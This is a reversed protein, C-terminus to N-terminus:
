FLALRERILGQLHDRIVEDELRELVEGAFAFTLERRAEAESIGRARLYFLQDEDLQGITAGHACKVDDAYIELQPRANAVAGKSLLLNKNHQASDTKQAQERVLVYGSFISSARDALVGKYYERSTCHAVAHDILTTVDAHQREAALYIGDLCCDAGSEALEVTIATRAIAGGLSVNFSSYRSDRAQRVAVTQIHTAGGAEDQVKVHRLHANAGTYAEFVVNNLYAGDGLGCYSELLTLSAGEELVVLVRPQILEAQAQASSFFGLHIPKTVQVGKPVYVLLGDQIGATNLAVMSEDDMQVAEGLRGKVVAELETLGAGLDVVRVGDNLENVTSVPGVMTGDLFIAHHADFEGFALLNREAAIEEASDSPLAFELSSISKLSTYRWTEKRTTPLGSAEFSDIGKQRLGGLVPSGVTSLEAKFGELAREFPQIQSM